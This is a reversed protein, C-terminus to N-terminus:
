PRLSKIVHTVVGWVEIPQDEQGVVDPYCPNSARLRAGSARKLLRRCEFENAVIAIVIDCNLPPLARDVILVDGDGIGDERMADGRARFLFTAQPHRILQATLDIRKAGLDAAPSPFGAQM